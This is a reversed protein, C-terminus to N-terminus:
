KYRLSPHAAQGGDTNPSPRPSIDPSPVRSPMLIELADAQAIMNQLNMPNKSRTRTRRASKTPKPSQHKQKYEMQIKAAEITDALEENRKIHSEKFAIFRDKIIDNTLKNGKELESLDSYSNIEENSILRNGKYTIKFVKDNYKSWEFITRDGNEEWIEESIEDPDDPTDPDDYTQYLVHKKKNNQFTGEYYIAYDYPDDYYRGTGHMTGENIDGEYYTNDAFFVTGHGHPTGNKIDGNYGIVPKGDWLEIKLEGIKIQRGIEAADVHLEGKIAVRGTSYVVNGPIGNGYVVNGHIPKDNEFTGTFLTGDIWEMTGTGHIKNKLWDGKYHKYYPDYIWDFIGQGTFKKNDVAGSIARIRPKKGGKGTTCYIGGGTKDNYINCEEHLILDSKFSQTQSNNATFKDALNIGGLQRTRNRNMNRIRRCKSKIKRKKNTKRRMNNIKKLAAM